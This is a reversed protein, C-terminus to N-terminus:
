SPSSLADEAAVGEPRAFGRAHIRQPLTIRDLIDGVLIHAEVATLREGVVTDGVRLRFMTRSDGPTELEISIRSVMPIGRSKQSKILVWGGTARLIGGRASRYLEPITSPGRQRELSIGPRQVNASARRRVSRGSRHRPRSLPSRGQSNPCPGLRCPSNEM